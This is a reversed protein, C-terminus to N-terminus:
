VEGLVADGDHAVSGMGRQREESLTGVHCQLGGGAKGAAQTAWVGLGRQATVFSGEQVTGGADDPAGGVVCFAEVVRCEARGLTSGGIDVPFELRLFDALAVVPKVLVVGPCNGQRVSVCGRM